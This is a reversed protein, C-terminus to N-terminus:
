WLGEKADFTRKQMLRRDGTQDKLTRLRLRFLSALSRSQAFAGMPGGLSGLIWIELGAVVLWGVARSCCKRCWSAVFFGRLNEPSPEGHTRQLM